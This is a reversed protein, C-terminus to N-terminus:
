ANAFGQSELLIPTKGTHDAWRQLAVAVYRPDNDIGRAGGGMVQRRWGSVTGKPIQYEKAVSNISQGALLAAMVAAKITDDYTTRRAILKEEM